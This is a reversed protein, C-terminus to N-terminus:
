GGADQQKCTYTVHKIRNKWKQKKWRENRKIGKNVTGDEEAM